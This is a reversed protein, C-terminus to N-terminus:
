IAKYIWNPIYFRRKNLVAGITKVNRAALQERCDQAVEWRLQESEIVMIVGDCQTTIKTAFAGQSLAPIDIITFDYRKKSEELLSKFREWMIGDTLSEDDFGAPIVRINDIQKVANKASGTKIIDTLGPSMGVGLIKHLSPNATNADMVLVKGASKNALAKTLNAVVTSVGERRNYSTVGIVYGGAVSGNLSQLLREKLDLYNNQPKAPRRVLTTTTSGKKSVALRRSSTKLKIASNGNLQFSRLRPIYGLSKMHLKDEIDHPTKVTHDILESVIGLLLAGFIGFVFGLGLNLSKRPRVSKIPLTAEQVISINSIRQSEMANDIRAQELNESYKRLNAEHTSIERMLVAIKMEADNLSALQKQVAEIQQCLTSLKKEFAARDVKETLLALSLEEYSHNLGTTIQTRDQEKKLLEEARAIEQRISEISRSDESFNKLLKQEEIQLRFLEERMAGAGSSPYGTTEELVTTQSVGAIAEELSQIKATSSSLSSDTSDKEVELQRIRELFITQQQAISTIGAKNKLAKLKEESAALENKLHETQEVFFQYSGPTRHAAIHKELSLNILESVVKQAMDPSKSAYSVKIINSDKESGVYLDNSLGLLIQERESLPEVMALQKLVKKPWNLLSKVPALWQGSSSSGDTNQSKMLLQDCGISDIVQEILDRGRFIEIESNIESLRSQSVHMVPGTSATPDLSVSERGIKLLLKAESRYIASSCITVATVLCVVTTFFFLMKWKHRFLVYVFDRSTLARASRDTKIDIPQEAM